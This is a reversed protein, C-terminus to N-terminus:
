KYPFEQGEKKLSISTPCPECVCCIRGQALNGFVEVNESKMKVKSDKPMERM